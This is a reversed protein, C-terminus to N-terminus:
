EPLNRLLNGLVLVEVAVVAPGFNARALVGGVQSLAHPVPTPAHSAALSSAIGCTCGSRQQGVADRGAEREHSRVRTREGRKQSRHVEVPSRQAPAATEADGVSFRANGEGVLWADALPTLGTPRTESVRHGGAAEGARSVGLRASLTPAVSPLAEGTLVSGARCLGPRGVADPACPSRPLRPRSSSHPPHPPASNGPAPQQGRTEAAGQWAARTHGPGLASHVTELVRTAIPPRRPTRCRPPKPTGTGGRSQTRRGAGRGARLPRAGGGAARLPGQAAVAPQVLPAVKSLRCV